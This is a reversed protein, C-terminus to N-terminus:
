RKRYGYRCRAQEPLSPLSRVRAQFFACLEELNAFTYWEGDVIAEAMIRWPALPGPRWIRVLYSHYEGPTAGTLWSTPKSMTHGYCPPTGFAHRRLSLASKKVLGYLDIM